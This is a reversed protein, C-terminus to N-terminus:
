PIVFVGSPSTMKVAFSAFAIAPSPWEAAVGPKLTKAKELLAKDEARLVECAGRGWDPRHARLVSTATLALALLVCALFIRSPKQFASAVCIFLGVVPILLFRSQQAGLFWLGWFVLSFIALASFEKGMLGNRFLFLFPLLFLLYMLGLPYDFSNNVGNEPVAVLWLHKVFAALSRGHGYDDKIVLWQCANRELPSLAGLAGPACGGSRLVNATLPYFPTGAHVGSKAMFPGAILVSLLLFYVATKNWEPRFRLASSNFRQATIIVLLTVFIVLTIFVPMLPKSWFFFVFEAAALFMNGTLFSDIAAFFLYAVAIDLMATGVQIGLSHLGLVAAGALLAADMARGSWRYVLRGAIVVLGVMFLFQPFKNPLETALWYPALALDIPILFLDAPFWKLWAFSGAILHQRPLALHYNIVDYEQPLHPPLFSAALGTLVIVAAFLGAGAVFWKPLGPFRMSLPARRVFLWSLVCFFAAASWTTHGTPHRLLFLELWFVPYGILLLLTPLHAFPIM